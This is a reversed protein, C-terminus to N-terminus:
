DESARKSEENLILNVNHKEIDTLLHDVNEFSPNYWLQQSFYKRLDDSKFIYGHNAFIENRMLRLENASFEKFINPNLKNVSLIAYKRVSNISLNDLDLQETVSYGFGNYIGSLPYNLIEIILGKFKKELEYDREVVESVSYIRLLENISNKYVDVYKSFPEDSSLKQIHYSFGGIIFHKDGYINGFIYASNSEIFGLKKINQDSKKFILFGDCINPRRNVRFIFLNKFKYCIDKGFIDLEYDGQDFELIKNGNTFIEISSFYEFKDKLVISDTGDVQFIIVGFSSSLDYNYKEIPIILENKYDIQANVRLILGCILLSLIIKNM